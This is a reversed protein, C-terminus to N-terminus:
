LLTAFPESVEIQLVEGNKIGLNLFLIEAIQLKKEGDMSKYSM